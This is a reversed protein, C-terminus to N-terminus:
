GAGKKYNCGTEKNIGIGKEYTSQAYKLTLNTKFIRRRGPEKEEKGIDRLLGHKEVCDGRNTTPTSSSSNLKCFFLVLNYVTHTHTHTHNNIVRNDNILLIQMLKGGIQDGFKNLVSVFWCIGVITRCLLGRQRM